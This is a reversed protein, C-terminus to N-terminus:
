NDDGFFVYDDSFTLVQNDKLKQLAVALEEPSLKEKVAEQLINRPGGEMDEVMQKVYSVQEDTVTM